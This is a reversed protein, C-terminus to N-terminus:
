VRRRPAAVIVLCIATGWALIAPGLLENRQFVRGVVGFVGAAVLYIVANRTWIM